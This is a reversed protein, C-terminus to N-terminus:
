QMEKWKLTHNHYDKMEGYLIIGYYSLQDYVESEFGVRKNEKKVNKVKEFLEYDNKEFIEYKPFRSFRTVRVIRGDVDITEISHICKLYIMKENNELHIKINSIFFPIFIIETSENFTKFNRQILLDAYSFPEKYVEVVQKSNTTIEEEEFDYYDRKEEKIYRISDDFDWKQHEIGKIKQKLLTESSQNNIFRILTIVIDICKNPYKIIQLESFRIVHWGHSIFFEDRRKDEPVNFYHTPIGSHSYPEDIEIDIMIDKESDVYAIDPYYKMGNGSIRNHCKVRNPLVQYLESCFHLELDNSFMSYDGEDLKM